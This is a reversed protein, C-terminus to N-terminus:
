RRICELWEAEVQSVFGNQKPRIKERSYLRQAFHGQNKENLRMSPDEEAKVGAMVAKVGAKVAKVGTKVAKVGAKGVKVGAKVAKVAAKM